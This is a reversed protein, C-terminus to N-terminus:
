EALILKLEFPPSADTRVTKITALPGTDGLPGPTALMEGVDPGAIPPVVTVRVPLPKLPALWTRNPGAVLLKVTFLAVCIVATLGAPLPVTCTVTVVGPPVEGVLM